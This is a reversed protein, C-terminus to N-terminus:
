YILTADERHIATNYLHAMWAFDAQPPEKEKRGSTKQSATVISERGHHAAGRHSSATAAPAKEQIHHSSSYQRL